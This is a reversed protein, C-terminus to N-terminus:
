ISSVCARIREVVNPDSLTSVDGLEGSVDTALLRLIRRMCKGSRTKPLGPVIYMKDLKAHAGIAKRLSEDLQARQPPADVSQPVVFACVGQGKISHEIGVIAVEAVWRTEVLVAEIEATGIRHGSVNLVDDVRGTITYFDDSDRHCGDGTFYYGPYDTFYTSVFREHDAYVTRAQGPWPQALCLHGMGVGELRTGSVDDMLVPVIGPMPLGATGAPPEVYGNAAAICIGGTETQWWTDIVPARGEGVVDRYWHWTAPDIPEGVTGLVRLSSRDHPEVWENGKAALARLATPATYFVAVKYRAVLDWYRGANPYMPTSEFMMTTSGNALPGYVIYTHGTIWGVDAVCAYVDESQIGFANRHTYAAYTLYGGCTHVVGKPKGTSGSTYLIFLPAEANLITPSCTSAQIEVLAAWDHDLGDTMNCNSGTHRFVLVADLDHGEVAQDVTTKLPILRGGRRGEDQTIVVKAGSDSIRDSIASASFGGFVVSHVAGIRACALMAIAAEPVMGMYIIVRDGAQVKLSKLANAVKCVEELLIQYTIHREVGVEDGCWLIATKDPQAKAHRDLCTTTVNLQGDEFWRIPMERVSNFDGVLGIQPETEWSILRRAHELWFSSPDITAAHSEAQWELRDKFTSLLATM